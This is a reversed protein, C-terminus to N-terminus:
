KLTLVYDIGNIHSKTWFFWYYKNLYCYKLFLISCVFFDLSIIVLFKWYLLWVFDRENPMYYFALLFSVLVLVLDSFFLVSAFHKSLNLFSFLSGEGLSICGLAISSYLFVLAITSFLFCTKKNRRRSFSLHIHKM